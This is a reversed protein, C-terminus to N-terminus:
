TVGSVQTEIKNLYNEWWEIAMRVIERQDRGLFAGTTIPYHYVATGAAVNVTVGQGAHIEYRKIINNREQEIFEWFIKPEPKSSSLAKWERNIAEALKPDKEADVYRLVHGVARLLAVAAVWRRRWENGQVGEHLDELAGRCDELVTRARLNM